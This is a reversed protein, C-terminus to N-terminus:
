EANPWSLILQQVSKLMGPLAVCQLKFPLLITKKLMTLVDLPLRNCAHFALCFSAILM